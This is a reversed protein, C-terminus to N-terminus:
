ESKTNEKPKSKEASFKKWVKSPILKEIYASLSEFKELESKDGLRENLELPKKDGSFSITIAKSPGGVKMNDTFNPNYGSALFGSANLIKNFSKMQGKSLRRSYSDSKSGNSYSTYTMRVYRDSSIVVSYNKQYAPSVPGNSYKYEIATWEQAHLLSSASLVLFLSILLNKM